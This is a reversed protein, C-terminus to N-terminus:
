DLYAVLRTVMEAVRSAPAFENKAVKEVYDTQELNLYITQYKQARRMGLEDRAIAEVHDLDLSRDIEFQLKENSAVLAELNAQKQNVTNSRDTIMVGRYLVVFAFLAVLLVRLIGLTNAHRQAVKEKSKSVKIRVNPQTQPLGLPYATTYRHDYALNNRSNM